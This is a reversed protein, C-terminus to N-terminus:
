PGLFIHISDILMSHRKLFLLLAAQDSDNPNIKEEASGKLNAFPKGTGREQELENSAASTASVNATSINRMSMIMVIFACYSGIAEM